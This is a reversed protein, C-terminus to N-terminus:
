FEAEGPHHNDPQNNPNRREAILRNRDAVRQPMCKCRSALRTARDVIWGDGDCAQFPCRYNPLAIRTM